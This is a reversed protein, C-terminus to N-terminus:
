KAVAEHGEALAIQLPTILYDKTQVNIDCRAAILQETVRAHGKGAAIFIPASGELGDMSLTLIEVNCRAAILQKTVAAHGNEAALYIPTAGGKTQLDVNCRADILQKLVAANGNLAAEHLPTALERADQYNIFNQADQM